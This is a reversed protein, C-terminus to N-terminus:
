LQGGSRGVAGVCSVSQPVSQARVGQIAGLDRGVRAGCRAHQEGQTSTKHARRTRLAHAGERGATGDEVCASVWGPRLGGTRGAV